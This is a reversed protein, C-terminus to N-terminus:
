CVLNWWVSSFTLIVGAIM